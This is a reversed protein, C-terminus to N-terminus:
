EPLNATFFEERKEATTGTGAFFPTSPDLKDALYNGHTWNNSMNTLFDEKSKKFGTPVNDEGEEIADAEKDYYSVEYEVNACSKNYDEGAEIKCKGILLSAGNAKYHALLLYIEDQEERQFNMLRMGLLHEKDTNSKHEVIFGSWIDLSSGAVLTGVQRMNGNKNLSVLTYSPFEHHGYLNTMTGVINDAEDDTKPVTGDSDKLEQWEIFRTGQFVEEKVQGARYLIHKNTNEVEKPDDQAFQELVNCDYFITKAYIDASMALALKDSKKRLADVVDSTAANTQTMEDLCDFDDVYLSASRSIRIYEFPEIAFSPFGNRDINTRQTLRDKHSIKSTNLDCASLLLSIATTTMVAQMAIVVRVCM